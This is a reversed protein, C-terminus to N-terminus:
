VRFIDLHPADEALGSVRFIDLHPADEARENEGERTQLWTLVRLESVSGNDAVDDVDDLHHAGDEGHDAFSCWQVRKVRPGSYV